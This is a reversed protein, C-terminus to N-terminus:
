ARRPEAHCRAEEAAVEAIAMLDASLRPLKEPGADGARQEAVWRSLQGDIHPGTRPPFRWWGDRAAEQPPQHNGDKAPKSINVAVEDDRAGRVAAGAGLGAPLM